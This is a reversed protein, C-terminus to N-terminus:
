YPRERLRVKYLLRSVLIQGVFFIAVTVTIESATLSLSRRCFLMPFLSEPIQDLGIARDESRLGIRRKVFSSFLDGAMAGSGVLAGIKWQLGFLPACATTVLISLVVGRVTKSAGLLPKGDFFRLGGDLPYASINRLVDKAIVPTGNAVTMLALLKLITFFRV